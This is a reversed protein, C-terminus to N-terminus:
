AKKKAYGFVQVAVIRKTKPHLTVAVGTFGYLPNIINTHHGSSNVWLRVFDEAVQRYTYNRYPKGGKDVISSEIWSAAINEGCLYTTGGYFEARKQVSSKKEDPQRHTITRQYQLYSAQDAAAMFLSTDYSLPQLGKEKRVSDIAQRILQEVLAANFTEPKITDTPTQALIGKTTLLFGAILAFILQFRTSNFPTSQNEISSLPNM